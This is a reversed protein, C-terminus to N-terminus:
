ENEIIDMALFPITIEMFKDGQTMGKEYESVKVSKITDTSVDGGDAPKYTVVLDFRIDRLSVVGLGKTLAIVESQLLVIEGDFTENGSQIAIPKKGRGHLHEDDSSGKYKVARIGVFSRGLAKVRIDQWAYQKYEVM